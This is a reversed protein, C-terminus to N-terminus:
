AHQNPDVTPVDSPQYNEAIEAAREGFYEDRVANYGEAVADWDAGESGLFTDFRGDSVASYFRETIKGEDESSDEGHTRKVDALANDQDEEYAKWERESYDSEDLIPYEDRIYLAMRAAEAFVPTYGVYDRVRVFIHRVSGVAWHGASVDIVDDPECENDESAAIGQLEALMTHFNSEGLLDDSRDAWTFVCGHTDFLRDDFWASDSPRALAEEAAKALTDADLTDHSYLSRSM